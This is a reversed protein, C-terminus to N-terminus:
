EPSSLIEHGCHQIKKPDLTPLHITILGSVRVQQRDCSHPEDCLQVSPAVLSANQPALKVVLNNRGPGQAASLRDARRFTVIKGEQPSFINQYM